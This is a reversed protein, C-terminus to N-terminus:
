KISELQKKLEGNEPFLSAGKEVMQKALDIKGQQLYLNGLMSYTSAYEPRLDGKTEQQKVLQEFQKVAQAPKGTIAPWHSYSIAKSFRAEWNEPELKLVNDYCADMKTAYLGQDIPSKAGYLKHLYGTALDLQLATNGPDLKAREELARLADDLKGMAELKKWLADSKEFSTTPDALQALLADYEVKAAQEAKLDDGRSGSEGAVLGDGVPPHNASTEPTQATAREVLPSERLRKEIDELRSSLRDLSKGLQESEQTRSQELADIRQALATDDSGLTLIGVGAATVLALGAIATSTNM